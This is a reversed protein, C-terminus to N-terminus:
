TILIAQLAGSQDMEQEQQGQHLDESQFLELYGNIAEAIKQCDEETMDCNWNSRNEYTSLMPYVLKNDDVERKLGTVDRILFTMQDVLGSTRELVSVQIRSFGNELPGKTLEIKGRLSEDIKGLCTRGIYHAERMSIRQGLLRKMEESVAM